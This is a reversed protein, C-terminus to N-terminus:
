ADALGPFVDRVGAAADACRHRNGPRDGAGRGRRCRRHRSPSGGGRSRFVQLRQQPHQRLGAGPPRSRRRATVPPPPLTVAVSQGATDFMPRTTELAADIVEHLGVRERRLELRGRTIALRRAPRGAAPGHPSDASRDCRRGSRGVDDVSGAQAAGRQQAGAGAPQAARPRPQRPVRGQPSRGRAAVRRAGQPRRHRPRDVVRRHDRRLRRPDAVAYRYM